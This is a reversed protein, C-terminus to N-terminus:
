RIKDNELKISEDRNTSACRMTRGQGARAWHFIGGPPRAQNAEPNSSRWTLVLPQGNTGLLKVQLAADSGSSKMRYRLIDKIESRIDAVLTFGDDAKILEAPSACM